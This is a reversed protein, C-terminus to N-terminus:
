AIQLGMRIACLEARDVDMSGIKSSFGWMWRGESDKVVGGIAARSNNGM